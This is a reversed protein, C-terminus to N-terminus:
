RGQASPSLRVRAKKKPSPRLELETRPWTPACLVRPRIRWEAGVLLCDIDGAISIGATGLASAELFTCFHPLAGSLAVGKRLRISHEAWWEPEIM